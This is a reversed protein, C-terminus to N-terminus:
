RLSQLNRYREALAAAIREIVGPWDGASTQRFLRASPYWPSDERHRMWRWDPHFPLMIWVPAGIAGALHAISTDVTIILDMSRMAAATEAFPLPLERIVSAGLAAADQERVPMQLSWWEFDPNIMPLLTELSVSRNADMPNGPSGSWAIAIRPKDKPGLRRSMTEVLGPDPILGPPPITELTTGFACPLSMVPCHADFSPLPEGSAILRYDGGRYLPALAAPAEFVVQCGFQRLLPLYRSMQIADGLGQEAHVLLTRGAIEHDGLWLPQKFGRPRSKHQPASWRSEYLRFGERYDGQLLLITARSLETEPLGPQLALARDYAAMAKTDEGRVLFTHGLGNWASVLAPALSLAREFAARSEDIRDLKLLSNGKNFYAEAYDRKISIARDFDQIADIPRAMDNFVTGRSLWTGANGADAALAKGFAEIAEQPRNLAKLALGHNHHAAAAKPQAETAWRIHKEAEAFRRLQMLLAGMLNLASVDRPNRRLAKTFYREAAAYNGSRFAALGDQIPNVM